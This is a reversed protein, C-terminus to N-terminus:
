GRLIPTCFARQAVGILDSQPRPSAKIGLRDFPARYIPENAAVAKSAGRASEIDAELRGRREPTLVGGVRFQAMDRWAEREAAQIRQANELNDYIEAYALRQQLPMEAVIDAVARWISSRYSIALPQGIAGALAPRAGAASRDAWQELEDLRRSACPVQENQLEFAMRNWALEAGLARRAERIESRQNLNSALQEAGLATLVGAFVVAYEALFWRWDRPAEKSQRSAARAM